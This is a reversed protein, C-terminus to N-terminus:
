SGTKDLNERSVEIPYDVESNQENKTPPDIVNFEHLAHKYLLVVKGGEAKTGGARLVITYLSNWIVIGKLVLGNRLVAEVNNGVEAMHDVMHDVVPRDSRKLIAKWEKDAISAKKKITHELAAMRSKPFAMLIQIKDIQTHDSLQIHYDLVDKIVVDLFGDYTVLRVEGDEQFAKTLLFKETLTYPVKPALSAKWMPKRIKSTYRHAYLVKKWETTKAWEFVTEENTNFAKAISEVSKSKYMFYFAARRIKKKRNKDRRAKRDGATHEEILPTTNKAM